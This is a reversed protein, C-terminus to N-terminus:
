FMNFNQRDRDSFGGDNNGYGGFRSDRNLDDFDNVSEGRGGGGGGRSGGGAPRFGGGRSGGGGRPPIPDPKVEIPPIPEPLPVFNDKIVDSIPKIETTLTRQVTSIRYEELVTYGAKKVTIIKPTLLEKETFNLVGPTNGNEVGNVLISAPNNNVGSGVLRVNVKVPANYDNVVPAPTPAPYRCKGNDFTAKPNFNLATRDMCGGVIPQITPGEEIPKPPTIEEIIPDPLIPDPKPIIPDPRPPIPRPPPPPNLTGGGGGGGGGRIFVEIGDENNGYPSDQYGGFNDEYQNHRSRGDDFSFDQRRAM